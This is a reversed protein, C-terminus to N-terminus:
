ELQHTSSWLLTKVVTNQINSPKLKVTPQWYDSAHLKRELKQSKITTFHNKHPSLLRSRDLWEANWLGKKQNGPPPSIGTYPHLKRDYQEQKKNVMGQRDVFYNDNWQLTFLQCECFQARIDLSFRLESLCSM